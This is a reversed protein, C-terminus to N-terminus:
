LFWHIIALSFFVFFAYLLVQCICIVINTSALLIRVCSYGNAVGLALPKLDAFYDFYFATVFRQVGVSLNERSQKREAAIASIFL